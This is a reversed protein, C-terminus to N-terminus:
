QGKEERIVEKRKCSGGWQRSAKRIVLHLREGQGKGGRVVEEERRKYM